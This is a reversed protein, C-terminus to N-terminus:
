RAANYQKSDDLLALLPPVVRWALSLEWPPSLELPPPFVKHYDVTNYKTGQM